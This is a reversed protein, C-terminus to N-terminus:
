RGSKCLFQTPILNVGGGGATLGSLFFFFSFQILFSVFQAFCIGCSNGVSQSQCDLRYPTSLVPFRRVRYLDCTKPRSAVHLLGRFDSLSFIFFWFYMM